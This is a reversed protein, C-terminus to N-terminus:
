TKDLVAVFAGDTGSEPPFLTRNETLRFDSHSELFATVVRENEEPELSCTSYVLRGGPKLSPAVRELIERQTTALRPIESEKIRWRLDARRRL